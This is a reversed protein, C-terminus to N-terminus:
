FTDSLVFYSFPLRHVRCRQFRTQARMVHFRSVVCETGGFIIEPACFMFIPASVRPAASFSNRRVFCSFLVQRGRVASFSNPRVFCIFLVRRVRCPQFCSVPKSASPVASFSDPLAFCSISVWCWGYRRFRARSRSAQFRSGAGKTDGFILTLVFFMFVVTM